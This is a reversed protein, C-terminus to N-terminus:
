LPIIGQRSHMKIGDTNQSVFGQAVCEIEGQVTKNGAHVGGNRSCGKKVDGVNHIDSIALPDANIKTRNSFEGFPRHM